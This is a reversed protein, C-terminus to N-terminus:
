LGPESLWAGFVNVGVRNGFKALVKELCKGVAAISGFVIQLAYLLKKPPAIIPVPEFCKGLVEIAINDPLNSFDDNPRWLLDFLGDLSDGFL